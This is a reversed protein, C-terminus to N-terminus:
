LAVHMTVGDPKDVSGWLGCLSPMVRHLAKVFFVASFLTNKQNQSKGRLFFFSIRGQMLSTKQKNQIRRSRTHETQTNSQWATHTAKSGVAKLRLRGRPLTVLMPWRSAQSQAQRGRQRCTERKPTTLLASQVGKPVPQDHGVCLRATGVCMKSSCSQGPAHCRHHHRHKANTATPHGPSM